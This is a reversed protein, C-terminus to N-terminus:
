SKGIGGLEGMDGGAAGAGPGARYNVRPTGGSRDPGTSTWGDFASGLLGRPPEVPRCRLVFRGHRHGIERHTLQEFGANVKAVM